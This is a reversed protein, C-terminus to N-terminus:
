AGDHWVRHGSFAVAATLAAAAYVPASIDLKMLLAGALAGGFIALIAWLRRHTLWALGPAFLTETAYATITSTVVVTTMDAVALARATAAQAGMVMAISAAIVMGAGSGGAIPLKALATATAALIFASGGCIATVVPTWTPKPTVLQRGTVAAGLVYMILALLPGAVPLSGEDALGMGLIVINGTMNGTFVHDLGLYGVADVLGTAFTLAMMLWVRVHRPTSERIGRRLTTRHNPIHTM